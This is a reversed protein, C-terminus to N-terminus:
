DMYSRQWQELVLLSWIRHSHDRQGGRHEALLRAVEAPEFLGRRAIQAPHLLDGSIQSEARKLWVGFPATFGLKKRTLVEAPVKGRMIRRLIRKSALAGVRLPAPAGPLEELAALERRGLAVGGPDGVGRGGRAVPEITPTAESM